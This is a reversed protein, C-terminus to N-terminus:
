KNTVEDQMGNMVAVDYTRQTTTAHSAAKSMEEGAQRSHGEQSCRSIVM